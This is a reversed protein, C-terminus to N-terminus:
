CPTAPRTVSTTTSRRSITWISSSPPSRDRRQHAVGPGVEAAEVFRRRNTLGTLPDHFAQYSLQEELARRQAVDRGLMGVLGALRALVLLSLLATGVAVIALGGDSVPGMTVLVPGTIMAVALCIM